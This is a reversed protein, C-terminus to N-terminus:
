FCCSSIVKGDTNPDAEFERMPVINLTQSDKEDLDSAIAERKVMGQRLGTKAAKGFLKKLRGIDVNLSLNRVSLRCPTVLFNPNALKMKKDDAIYNILLILLM